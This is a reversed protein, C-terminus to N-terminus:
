AGALRRRILAGAVGALGAALGFWTLAYGLHNNPIDQPLAAPVVGPPPPQETEVAVIYPAPRRVGGLRALAAIADLDIVRAEVAGNERRLAASDIWPRAGPARLVGVAALPSAFREAHPAMRGTLDQVVGRDLLIADFPPPAAIRCFALLRWAVEGERLAYRFMPTSLAPRPLCAVSVRRFEVATARGAAGLVEELPRAPANQLAAVRAILGEKWKLRQLQWEGLGVLV